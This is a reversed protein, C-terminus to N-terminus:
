ANEDKPTSSMAKAMEIIQKQLRPDTIATYARVLTLVDRRTMVDAEDVAVDGSDFAEQEAESFGPATLGSKMTNAIDELFYTIPVRLAASMQALRKVAIHNTGKEYKQIQQFTVGIYKGLQEQSLGLLLRRARVRNGVHLDIPDVTNGTAM